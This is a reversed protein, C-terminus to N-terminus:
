GAAGSGALAGPERHPEAGRGRQRARQKLRVLYSWSEALHRYRAVLIPNEAEAALRRCTDARFQCEEAKLM